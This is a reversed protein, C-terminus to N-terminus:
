KQTQNAKQIMFDITRKLLNQVVKLSKNAQKVLSKYLHPNHEILDIVTALDFGFVFIVKAVEKLQPHSYLEAVLAQGQAYILDRPTQTYGSVEPTPTGVRENRLAHQVAKRLAEKNVTIKGDTTQRLKAYAYQIAKKPAKEETEELDSVKNTIAILVTRQALNFGNLMALQGVLHRAKPAGQLLPLHTAISSTMTERGTPEPTEASATSQQAIEAVSNFVWKMYRDVLTTSAESAHGSRKTGIDKFLLLHETQLNQLGVAFFAEPYRRAAHTLEHILTKIIDKRKKARKPFILKFPEKYGRQLNARSRYDIAAGTRAESMELEVIESIGLAELLEKLFGEVQDAPLKENLYKDLANAQAPTLEPLTVDGAVENLIFESLIQQPDYDERAKADTKAWKEIQAAFGKPNLGKLVELSARFPASVNYMYRILPRSFPVFLGHNPQRAEPSTSNQEKATITAEEFFARFPQAGRVFLSYRTIKRPTRPQATTGPKTQELTLRLRSVTAIRTNTLRLFLRMLAITPQAQTDKINRIREKLWKKYERLMKERLAAAHNIDMQMRYPFDFDPSALEQIAQTPDKHEEVVHVLRDTFTDLEYGKGIELLKKLKKKAAKVKPTLEHNEQSEQRVEAIRTTTYELVRYIVAYPDPAQPGSAKNQDPQNYKEELKAAQKLWKEWNKLKKKDKEEPPTETITETQATKPLTQLLAEVEAKLDEPLSKLFTGAQKLLAEPSLKATEDQPEVRLAELIQQNHALFLLFSGQSEAYIRPYINRKDTDPIRELILALEHELQESSLNTIDLELHSLADRLENVDKFDPPIEFEEQQEKNPTSTELNAERLQEALRALSNNAPDPNRKQCADVIAEPPSPYFQYTRKSAPEM